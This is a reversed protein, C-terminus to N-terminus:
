KKLGGYLFAIGLVIWFMFWIQFLDPNMTTFDLGLIYLDMTNLSLAVAWCLMFLAVGFIPRLRM